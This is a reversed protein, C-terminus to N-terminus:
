KSLPDSNDLYLLWPYFISYINISKSLKLKYIINNIARIIKFPNLNKYDLFKNSRITKINRSDLM